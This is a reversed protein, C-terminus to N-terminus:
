EDENLIDIIDQKFSKICPLNDRILPDLEYIQKSLAIERKINDILGQRAQRELLVPDVEEKEVKIAPYNFKCDEEFIAEEELFTGDKFDLYFSKPKENAEKTLHLFLISISTHDFKCNHLIGFEKICKNKVLYKRFKEEEGRYAIGPFCLYFGEKAYLFSKLIFIFDLKGKVNDPKVKETVENFLSDESQKKAFFQKLFYDNAIYNKQTNTPSLSFPYNAIAVDYYKAIDSTIFDANYTNINNFNKNALELANINVDFGDIEKIQKAIEFLLQGSGIAPELVTLNDKTIKSALFQRLKLPTIYEALKNAEGRTDYEHKVTNTM